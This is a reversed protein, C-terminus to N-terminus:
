KIDKFINKTITNITTANTMDNIKHPPLAIFNVAHFFYEAQSSLSSECRLFIILM